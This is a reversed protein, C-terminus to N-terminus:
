QKYERVLLHFNGTDGAATFTGKMLGIRCPFQMVSFPLPCSGTRSTADLGTYSCAPTLVYWAVESAIYRTLRLRVDRGDKDQAYLYWDRVGVDATATGDFMGSDLVWYYGNPPGVYQITNLAFGTLTVRKQEYAVNPIDPSTRVPEQTVVPLRFAM